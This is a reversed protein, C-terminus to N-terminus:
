LVVSDKRVAVIIGSSLNIKTLTLDKTNKLDLILEDVKKIHDTSSWNPQPLM